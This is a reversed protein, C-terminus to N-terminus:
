QCSAIANMARQMAAAFAARDESTLSVPNSELTQAMIDLNHTAVRVLAAEASTPHQQQRPPSAPTAKSTTAAAFAGYQETENKRQRQRDEWGLPLASHPQPRAQLLEQEEIKKMYFARVEESNRYSSSGTDEYSNTVNKSVFRNAADAGLKLDHESVQNNRSEWGIPVNSSAPM